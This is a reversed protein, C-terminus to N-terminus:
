MQLGHSKIYRLFNLKINYKASDYISKIFDDTVLSGELYLKLNFESIFKRFERLFNFFTDLDPFNTRWIGVFIRKFGYKHLFKIISRRVNTPHSRDVIVSCGIEFDDIWGYVNIGAVENSEVFEKPNFRTVRELFNMIRDTESVDFEVHINVDVSICSGEYSNVNVDVVWDDDKRYFKDGFRKQIEKLLTAKKVEVDREDTFLKVCEKIFGDIKNIIQPDDLKFSGTERRYLHPLDVKVIVDKELFDFSIYVNGVKTEIPKLILRIIRGNSILIDKVKYGKEELGKIFDCKIEVMVM